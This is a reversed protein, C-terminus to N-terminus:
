KFIKYLWSIFHLNSRILRNFVWDDNCYKRTLLCPKNQFSAWDKLVDIVEAPYLERFFRDREKCSVDECKTSLGTTDYISVMINIHRFSRGEKLWEVFRKWDAAIKYTEDYGQVKLLSSKIFTSQHNISYEYMRKMTLHDDYVWRRPHKPYQFWADGYVIDSYLGEELVRDLTTSDYLADGSNLFLMYEGQAMKIGKNMAHYIGNDKESCWYAIKADHQLLFDRSGDSSGGDIVLWEYDTCSQSLVSQATKELGAVNNYNITIISLKM